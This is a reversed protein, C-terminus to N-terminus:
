GVARRVFLSCCPRLAGQRWGPGRGGGVRARRGGGGGGGGRALVARVKGGHGAGRPAPPRWRQSPDPAARAGRPLAGPQTDAVMSAGDACMEIHPLKSYVMLYMNCM